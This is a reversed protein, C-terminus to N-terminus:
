QPKENASPLGTNNNGTGNIQILTEVESGGKVMVTKINGIGPAYFKNELLDLELLNFDETKLVNSFCGYPVCVKENLSLVTAGDEAEGKAVEQQYKDGVKPQAEMIIGAKAGKVGAEWSGKHSKSPLETTFEGMYWVNGDNDQAFWDDTTEELDSKVYANDHVVRTTIGLIVKTDNTVSFEDRTPEGDEDTGNYIMTAGPKLPFYKNDIKLPDHFNSKNFTIASAQAPLAMSTSLMLMLFIGLIAVLPLVKKKSQIEM